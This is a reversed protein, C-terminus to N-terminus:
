CFSIKKRKMQKYSDVSIKLLTASEKILVKTAKLKFGMHTYFDRIAVM